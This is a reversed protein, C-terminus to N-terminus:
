QLHIIFPINRCFPYRIFAILQGSSSKVPASHEDAGYGSYCLKIAKELAPKAPGPLPCSRNAMRHKTDEGVAKAAQRTNLRGMIVAYRPLIGTSSQLPPMAMCMFLLPADLKLTRKSFTKGMTTGYFNEAIQSWGREHGRPHIFSTEPSVYFLQKGLTPDAKDISYLYRNIGETIEQKVTSTAENQAATPTAASASSAMLTLTIAAASFLLSTKAYYNYGYPRNKLRKIKGTVNVKISFSCPERVIFFM